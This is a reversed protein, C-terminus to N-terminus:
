ADLTEGRAAAPERRSLFHYYIFGVRHVGARQRAVHGGAQGQLKYWRYHTLLTWCYAVVVTQGSSTVDASTGQQVATAGGPSQAFGAM